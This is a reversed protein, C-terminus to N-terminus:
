NEAFAHNLANSMLNSIMKTFIEEDVHAYFPESPM